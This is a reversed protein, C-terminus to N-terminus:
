RLQNQPRATTENNGKVVTPPDTNGVMNYIFGQATNRDSGIMVALEDMIDTHDENQMTVSPISEDKYPVLMCDVSPTSSPDSPINQEHDADNIPAMLQRYHRDDFNQDVQSLLETLVTQKDYPNIAERM